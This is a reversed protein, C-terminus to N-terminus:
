RLVGSVTEAAKVEEEEAEEEEERSEPVGFFFLFSSCFSCLKFKASERSKKSDILRSVLTYMRM